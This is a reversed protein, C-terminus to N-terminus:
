SSIDVKQATAQSLESELHSTKNTWEEQAFAQNETLHGVEAEFSALKSCVARMQM